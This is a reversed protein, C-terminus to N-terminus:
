YRDLTERLKGFTDIIIGSIVNIMIIMLFIYSLNDFFFRLFFYNRNHPKVITPDRLFGGLGGDYKFSRDVTTLLCNFM